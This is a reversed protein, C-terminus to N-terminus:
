VAQITINRISVPEVPRSGEDNPGRAPEREANAITDLADLGDVVRGFATYKNDLFSAEGHCVFFQSGASDPDASRAMSLVGREHHVDNFEADISYGPGGTGWARDDDTKTNPDGGQIMFGPIVRHFRTGDYFGEGALKLFNEVHKPAKETLFEVTIEGADTVLVARVENSENSM